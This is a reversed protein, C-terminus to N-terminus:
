WDCIWEDNMWEDTWIWEDNMRKDTLYINM